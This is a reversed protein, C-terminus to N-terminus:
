PSGASGSLVTRLPCGWWQSCVIRPAGLGAASSEQAKTSIATQFNQQKCAKFAHLSNPNKFKGKKGAWPMQDLSSLLPEWDWPFMLWRCLNKSLCFPGMIWFEFMSLPSMGKPPPIQCYRGLTCFTSKVQCSWKQSGRRCIGQCWIFLNVKLYNM